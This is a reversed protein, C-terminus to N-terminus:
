PRAGANSAAVLRHIEDLRAVKIALVADAAGETERLERLLRLREPSRLRPSYCLKLEAGNMCGTAGVYRHWDTDWRVADFAVAAKGKPAIRIV